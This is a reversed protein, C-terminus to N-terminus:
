YSLPSSLHIVGELNLRGSLFTQTMVAVIEGRTRNGIVIVQGANAIM